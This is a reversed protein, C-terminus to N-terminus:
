QFDAFYTSHIFILTTDGDTYPFVVRWAHDAPLPDYRGNGKHDAYFDLQYIGSQRLAPFRILFHPVPVAPITAGGLEEWTAEVPLRAEFKQGVHPSM